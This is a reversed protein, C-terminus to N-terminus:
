FRLFAAATELETNKVWDIMVPMLLKLVLMLVFILVFGIVANKLHSKAKERDQPEEAKAFKIGLFVCYLAGLSGVILLLPTMLSDLFEVIPRVVDNISADASVSMVVALLMMMAAAAFVRKENFKRM